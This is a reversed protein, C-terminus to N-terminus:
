KKEQDEVMKKIVSETIQPVVEWAIDRIIKESFRAAVRDAIADILEQSLVISQTFAVINKDKAIELSTEPTKVELQNSDTDTKVPVQQTEIEQNTIPPIELLDLDELSLHSATNGLTEEKGAEATKDDSIEPSISDNNDAFFKPEPMEEFEQKEFLAATPQEVPEEISEISEETEIETIRTPEDVTPEEVEIEKIEETELFESSKEPETGVSEKSDFNETPKAEIDSHFESESEEVAAPIEVVEEPEEIEDSSYQNTEAIAPEFNTESEEVAEIEPQVEEVEKEETIEFTESGNEEVTEDSVIEIESIDSYETTEPYLEDKLELEAESIETEDSESVETPTEIVSIVPEDKEIVFDADKDIFAPEFIIPLTQEFEASKETEEVEAIKEEGFDYVTHESNVESLDSENSIKEAIPEDEVIAEPKEFIEHVTATENVSLEREFINDATKEEFNAVPNNTLPSTFSFNNVQNTQIMEDDFGSDGFDDFTPTNQPFEKTDAFHIDESVATEIPLEKFEETKNELFSDATLTRSREDLLETVKTVLQRISQFPKTLYANAGVFNAKDEDFPEFSGVLLIVPIGRTEENQKIIQCIEYGSLGPMNVDALILDPLAENIKEMAADGNGVATVEIGEDAFTLNVVKQITISDDALLLKRKSM